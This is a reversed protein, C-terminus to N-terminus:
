LTSIKILKQIIAISSEIGFIVVYSAIAVGILGVIAGVIMMIGDKNMLALAMLMIGASPLANGFIIPLVICTSFILSFLGVIREGIITHSFELRPKFLRELKQLYPITKTIVKELTTRKITKEGIFKPLKPSDYGLLMQWSFFFLPIGLLTTFGPPYPLPIAMPFSFLVMLLGFGLEHLSDKIENLTLREKKFDKIVHVLLKSASENAITM